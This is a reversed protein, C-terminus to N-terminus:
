ATRLTKKSTGVVIPSQEFVILASVVRGCAVAVREVLKERYPNDPANGFEILAQEVDRMSPALEKGSVARLLARVSNSLEIIDAVSLDHTPGSVRSGPGSM